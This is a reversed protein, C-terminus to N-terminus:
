WKVAATRCLSRTMQEPSIPASVLLVEAVALHANLLALSSIPTTSLSAPLPYSSMMSYVPKM